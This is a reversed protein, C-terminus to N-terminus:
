ADYDKAVMWMAEANALPIGMLGILTQTMPHDWHIPNSYEWWVTAEDRAVDDPIAAIVAAVASLSIGNRILGLRLQRNSLPFSAPINPIPEPEPEPEPEPAVSYDSGYKRVIEMVLWPATPAPVGVTLAHDAIAASFSAVAEALEQETGFANLLEREIIVPM